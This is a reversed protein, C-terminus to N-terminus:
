SGDRVETLLAKIVSVPVPFDDPAASVKAIAEDFAARRIAAPMETLGSANVPNLQCYDTHPHGGQSQCSPCVDPVRQYTQEFIDPKCPYLEGKVGRIIWDDPSALMEGELTHIVAYWYDEGLFRFTITEDEIAASLWEPVESFVAPPDAYEANGYQVAEVEVPRKRVKV